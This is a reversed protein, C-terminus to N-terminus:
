KKNSYQQTFYNSNPITNSLNCGYEKYELIIQSYSKIKVLKKSKKKSNDIVIIEKEEFVFNIYMTRM